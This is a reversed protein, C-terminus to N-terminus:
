LSGAYRRIDMVVMAGLGVLQQAVADNDEVVAQMYNHKTSRYKRLELLVTVATGTPADRHIRFPFAGPFEANFAAAAVVSSQHTASFIRRGPRAREGSLLGPTIGLAREVHADEAAIHERVLVDGPLAALADLIEWGFRVATTRYHLTMGVAEYLKVAALNQPDVNLEWETKGESKARSKVYDLTARALGKRRYPQAIVLQRIYVSQSLTQLICYGCAAGQYEVLLSRGMLDGCWTTYDPVPDPTHLDPYLAAFHVYDDALAQRITIM